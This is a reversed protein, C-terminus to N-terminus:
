LSAPRDCLRGQDPHTLVMGAARLAILAAFVM